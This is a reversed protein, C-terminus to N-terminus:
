KLSLNHFLLPRVFFGLIGLSGGSSEGMSDVSGAPRHKTDNIQPRNESIECRVEAPRLLFPIESM